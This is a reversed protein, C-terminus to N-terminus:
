RRNRCGQDFANTGSGTTHRRITGPRKVVTMTIENSSIAKGDVTITAPPITFQGEQVAQLYFSYGKSSSMRGNIIQISTSTNPGSLVSFPNFAPFSPDPLGSSQGNIEVKYEFTENLGVRNSNVVATIQVDQAFGTSIALILLFIIQRIRMM